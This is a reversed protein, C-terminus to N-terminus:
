AKRRRGPARNGDNAERSRAMYDDLLELKFERVVDALVYRDTLNTVLAPAINAPIDVAVHGRLKKAIADLKERNYDLHAVVYDLNITARAVTNYCDTLAVPRGFPDLIGSGPIHIASVFYSRCEYAWVAQELGGHYMSAFTLVQPRLARYRERLDSFNLDFCIIGGLRGAPTDVVVPGPGSTIGDEVEGITVYYKHYAGLAKGDPGIFAISNYVHKGERLKVSGAVCCKERRAFEGYLKLFPGPERVSEADERTQGTAAVGEGFVVLDLGWGELSSLVAATEDLVIKGADRAGREARTQFLPSAVNVLRM